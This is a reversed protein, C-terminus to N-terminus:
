QQHANTRAATFNNRNANQHHIAMPSINGGNVTAILNRATEDHGGGFHGGFEDM